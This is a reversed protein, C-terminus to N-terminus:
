GPPANLLRQILRLREASTSLPERGTLRRTADRHKSAVAMIQSDELTPDCLVDVLMRDFEPDSTNTHYVYTFRPSGGTNKYDDLKERMWSPPDKSLSYLRDLVVCENYIKRTRPVRKLWAELSPVPLTQVLLALSSSSRFNKSMLAEFEASFTDHDPPPTSELFSYIYGWRTNVVPSDAGSLADLAAVFADQPFRAHLAIVGAASVHPMAPQRAMDNFLTRANQNLIRTFRASRSFESLNASKPQLSALEDELDGFRIGGPGSKGCAAPLLASVALLPALKHFAPLNM